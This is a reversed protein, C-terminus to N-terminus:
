VRFGLGSGEVRFGNGPMPKSKSHVLGLCVLVSGVLLLRVVMAKLVLKPTSPKPTKPNLPKPSVGELLTANPNVPPLNCIAFSAFAWFVSGWVWPGFGM